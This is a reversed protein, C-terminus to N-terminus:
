GKGALSKGKRGKVRGDRRLAQERGRNKGSRRKTPDAEVKVGGPCSFDQADKFGEKTEGKGVESGNKGSM